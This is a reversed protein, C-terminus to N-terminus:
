RRTQVATEPDRDMGRVSFPGDKNMRNRSRTKSRNSENSGLKNARWGCLLRTFGMRFKTNMLGYIVPNVASSLFMMFVAFKDVPAPITVDLVAIFSVISVPAWCLIFSVLVACVMFTMRLEDKNSSSASSSSLSPTQSQDRPSPPRLTQRLSRASLRRVNNNLKDVDFHGATRPRELSHQGPRLSCAHNLNDASIASQMHFVRQEKNGEALTTTLAAVPSSIYSRGTNKPEDVSTLQISIRGSLRPHERKKYGRSGNSSEETSRSEGSSDLKWESSAARATYDTMRGGPVNPLQVIGRDSADDSHNDLTSASACPSIMIIENELSHQRPLDTLHGRGNIVIAGTIDSVTRKVLKKSPMSLPNNLRRDLSGTPPPQLRHPTLVNRTLDNNNRRRSNPSWSSGRFSGASPRRLSVTGGESRPYVKGSGRHSRMRRFNARVTRFIKAYSVFIVIFPFLIGLSFVFVTYSINTSWQLTCIARDPVFEYTSWGVAPPLAFLMSVLWVGACSYLSCELISDYM